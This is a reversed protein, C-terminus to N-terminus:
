SPRWESLDATDWWRLLRVDLCIGGDDLPPEAVYARAIREAVDASSVRCAVLRAGVEDAFRERAGISADVASLGLLFDVAHALEHGLIRAVEPDAPDVVVSLGDRHCVGRSYLLPAFEVSVGLDVALALLLVVAADPSGHCVETGSRDGRSRSTRYFVDAARVVLGVAEAVDAAAFGGREVMVFSLWLEVADVPGVLVRLAAALRVDDAPLDAVTFADLLGVVRGLDISALDDVDIM